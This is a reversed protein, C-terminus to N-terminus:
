SLIWFGDQLYFILVCDVHVKIVEYCWSFVWKIRSEYISQKLATEGAFQFVWLFIYRSHISVIEFCSSWKKNLFLVQCCVELIYVNKSIEVRLVFGVLIQKLVFLFCLFGFFSLICVWRWMILYHKNNKM